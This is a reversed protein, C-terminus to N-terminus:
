VKEKHMAISSINLVINIEFEVKSETSGLLFLLPKELDGFTGDM